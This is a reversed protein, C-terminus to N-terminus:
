AANSERLFNQIDARSVCGVASSGLGEVVLMGQWSPGGGVELRREDTERAQPTNVTGALAWSQSMRALLTNLMEQRKEMSLGQVASTFGELAAEEDQRVLQFVHQRVHGRKLEALVAAVARADAEKAGELFDAIKQDRTITAAMKDDDSVAAAGQLSEPVEEGVSLRRPRRDEVNNKLLERLLTRHRPTEGTPDAAKMKSLVAQEGLRRRLRGYFFKRSWKWDVIGHICGKAQMRAPVDHLDAYHEAVKQYLPLLLEQRTKLAVAVTTRERSTGGELEESLARVEPDLRRMTELLQTHRYKIEVIGSPELIGGRASSDVYMEMVESNITPDIVVWAGGRLEGEPPIYVFVPQKYDVLGEVIMSGFKLIEEYMDRMGGSFGRWNAIIFLPLGERNMDKIATATKYASDPFWVQGAQSVEREMSDADAPDAPNTRTVTRLEPLIVGVPIGGIRARGCITTKGWGALTEFFSNRDFLGGRWKGIADKAGTLLVRPDYVKSPNPGRRPDFVKRDIRDHLNSPPPVPLPGGRKAPVYSLWQVITSVGEFDDAVINHSVGNNYMIQTGGLQYNSTYVQKGLVKNLAGEGTLLIPPGKQIARQGLRVLYAGIGVSTGSVFTLTFTDEYARCTGGAIMGSGRLNEVGIGDPGIVASLKHRMTGDPLTIQETQAMDQQMFLDVDTDDVYLFEMGSVPNLPDKWQVRFKKKVEDVLGIRAGTNATVFIRPIGEKRAMETALHFMRDERIGFSGNQFTVDNAILIIERGDPCEPTHMLLRWVVMACDNRGEPRDVEELATEAANLTLEQAQMLERPRRSGGSWVNRAIGGMWSTASSVMASLTGSSEADVNSSAASAEDPASSSSPTASIDKSEKDKHRSLFTEWEKSLAKDFLTLFDYVFTTEKGKSTLRRLELHEIPPYPTNLEKGDLPGKPKGETFISKFLFATTNNINPSSAVVELYADTVVKHGSPNSFVVRMRVPNKHPIGTSDFSRNSDEPITEAETDYPEMVTLPIEVEIVGVQRLRGFNKEVTGKLIEIAEGRSLYLQPLIALFLHNCMQLTGFRNYAVDRGSIKEVYGKSLALSDCCELLMNELEAELFHKSDSKDAMMHGLVLARVFFRTMDDGRLSNAKQKAVFTRFHRNLIPGDAIPQIDYHTGLRGIEIMFARPPNLNRYILDEKWDLRDRFTYFTPYGTPRLVLLTVRSIKLSKLLARHRQVLAAVLQAVETDPHQLESSGKRLCLVINLVHVPSESSDGAGGAMPMGPSGPGGGPQPSMGEAGRANTPSELVAGERACQAPKFRSKLLDAFRSDLTETSYCTLTLNYRPPYTSDHTADWDKVFAQMDSISDMFSGGFSQQGSSSKKLTRKKGAGASLSTGPIGKKHTIDEDSAVAPLSESDKHFSQSKRQFWFEACMVEKGDQANEQAISLAQISYQRHSRRVFLEMVALRVGLPQAADLFVSMEEFISHVSQVLGSICKGFNRFGKVVVAGEDEEWLRLAAQLMEYLAKRRTELSPVVMKIRLRRAETAVESYPPGRFQELEALPPHVDDGCGGGAPPEAGSNRRSANFATQLTSPQSMLATLIHNILASKAKVGLNSVMYDYVRVCANQRQRKATQGVEEKAETTKLKVLGAIVEERRDLKGTFHTEVEMYRAILKGCVNWVLQTHGLAHKRLTALLGALRSDNEFAQLKALLTSCCVVVKDERQKTEELSVEETDSGSRMSPIPIDQGQSRMVPSLLYPLLEKSILTEVEEVVDKPLAARVATFSEEIEFFPLAPNHLAAMLDSVISQALEGGISPDTFGSLVAEARRLAGQLQQHCRTGSLHPPSFPPFGGEFVKAQTIGEKDHLDLTAIVDGAKVYSEKNAVHHLVGAHSAQLQMYMKMVEMEAFATGPQVEEGDDILFRVLKGTTSARLRSPDNETEFIVTKGDIELRLGSSDEEFFVTCSKGDIFVLLRGDCLLRADVNVFTGNLNMAFMNSDTCTVTICYKIGDLILEVPFETCLLASSPMRGYDLATVTESRLQKVATMAKVVAGCLVNAFVAPGEAVSTKIAKSALLGDLWMTNIRNERFDETELMKILYQTTTRIEGYITLEKLALLLHKRASERNGGTAFIHGFQSDAFEHVAGRGFVSFYGWVHSNVRFNLEQIVGSTPRFGTDPNEATIRAAIVHCKTPIRQATTFDIVSSGHRDELGYLTRIDPIQYLPINMGVMLMALPLNVDTVLETVTHEVQLRPNMELFFFKGDRYLYEVTGVGVYGVAKALSAAAKEMEAFTPADAVVAPGEEIIKQHRRQISCDRGNLTTVNGHQDALVQVELHRGGSFLRMLFVPSGVVEAQVQQLADPLDAIKSVMRIGKGGGGESAKVMLPFGVKEARALAEEVTSVCAQKYLDSPVDPSGRELQEKMSVGTGSWEICPVGASQAIISSGIKDGLAYMAVAGPGLFTIKRKDKALRGPLSPNESAHGWGAWVADVKKRQAIDVILDVNAYNNNNTGGPVEVIEDALRIYEANAALDEPTVMCIFCLEKELGLETIEWKRMSRIGKVAAIGNNAILIRSIVKNGGHHKVYEELSKWRMSKQDMSELCSASNNRKLASM